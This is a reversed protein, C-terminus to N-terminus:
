MNSDAFRYCLASVGEAGVAGVSTKSFLPLTQRRREWIFKPHTYALLLLIFVSHERVRADDTTAVRRPSPKM